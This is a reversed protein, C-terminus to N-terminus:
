LDLSSALYKMAEPGARSQERQMEAQLWTAMPRLGPAVNKEFPMRGTGRCAKCEQSGITTSGPMLLNGHGKCPKCVGDRHWALCARALDEAQVYALKVGMTRAKKWSMKALTEIIEPAAGNDGAFLRTLAAALPHVRSAFAVAALVDTDSNFTREESKLNSSHIATSYRDTIRM